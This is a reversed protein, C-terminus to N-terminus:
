LAPLYIDASHYSGSGRAACVGEHGQKFGRTTKAYVRRMSLLKVKVGLCTRKQRSNTTSRAPKSTVGDLVEHLGAGHPRAKLRTLESAM